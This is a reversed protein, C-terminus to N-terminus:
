LIEEYDKANIYCAIVSFIESDIATKMAQKLETMNRAEYGEGGFSQAMKIYDYNGDFDVGYKTMQMRKQKVEILALSDDVFVIVISKLNNEKLTALESLSMLFGADGTMTLSLRNKDAFAAGIGLPVGCAMSALGQSQLLSYPEYSMWVQDIVIRHAGTDASLITERPVMDRIACVISAIGWDRNQGYCVRLLERVKYPEGGSWINDSIVIGDTLCKLTAGIHCVYSKHEFHNYHFNAKLSLGVVKQKDVSWADIWSARVEIPDFGVLLVLDSLEVLPLLYKDANPSLCFSGISLPHDDSIVGKAQYTSIVPINLEEVIKRVESASEEVLVDSGIVILPRESNSIWSRVEDLERSQEPITRRVIDNKVRVRNSSSPEVMSAALGVPVDLHVPGRRGDLALHMVRDIQMAIDSESNGHELTFSAKTIGRFMERHDMIQHSYSVKELGGLCGTIVILPIRDQDASAVSNVCNTAGPGLTAVLVSPRYSRQYYGQAIYGGSNEHKVLVFEIDNRRLGDIVSLVEGGPMGFAKDVGFEKLRLAIVDSVAIMEMEKM